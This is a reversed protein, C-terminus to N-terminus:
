PVVVNEEVVFEGRTADLAVTVGLPLTLTPDCHGAKVNVVTPKGYPAVVKAVVDAVTFGHPYDKSACDAWDGLVIGAADSLKGALALQTLMRDVRYPEEGVDELFLICGKTDLEFATGLTDAILSLNGGVLKGRAKGAVLCCIDEGPPNNVKGLPVTETMAKLLSRKSFDSAVTLDSAAMPGHVTALGTQQRIATHLATVDSYGIFLKPNAAIAEYDLLTLLQPTGYGGRLCMIADVDVDCFMANVDQAREEPTGALYGGYEAFCSAGLKVRFGLAEVADKAEYVDDVRKTPSAPAVIGITSDATLRKGKKM